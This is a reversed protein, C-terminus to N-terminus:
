RSDETGFISGATGAQEHLQGPGHLPLSSNRRSTQGRRRDLDVFIVHHGLRRLAQELREEHSSWWHRKGGIVVLARRRLIQRLSLDRNRCLCVRVTVNEERASSQLVLSCQQRTTIDLSIPPKHLPFRPPVVELKLLTIHAELDTALRRAENLATTTGKPTTAIVTVCLGPNSPLTRLADAGGHSDRFNTTRRENVNM